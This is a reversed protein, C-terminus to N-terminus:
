HHAAEEHHHEEIAQGFYLAALLTFVYAQLFAVLLELCGMFLAMFVSFISVGYGVAASMEGFIFILCFFGLIIIHGAMINAFLRIMLVLPKSFFGIIEVIPMLPVPFKLWWPVGPTNIIHIWYAKKASFSSIFFVFLALVMTVAINGTVNAGGPFWPILGFLNNFFIFFFLTLLFPMYRMYKKDGISPKAVEDRLFIILPEMFSQIGKPVLQGRKYAKSIRLAILCLIIVAILMAAVNKTISIDYFSHGDEAVVKNNKDLSYRNYSAHGHEFKSSMFCELGKESSYLIVPLSISVPHGNIDCIHWDHADKVHELITEGPKFKEKKAEHNETAHEETTTEPHNAFASVGLFTTFIFSVLLFRLPKLFTFEKHAPSELSQM